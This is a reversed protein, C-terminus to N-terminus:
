IPISRRIACANRSAYPQVGCSYRRDHGVREGGVVEHADRLPPPSAYAHSLNMCGFGIATVQRSGILRQISVM